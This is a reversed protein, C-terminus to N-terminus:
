PLWLEERNSKIMDSATWDGQLSSRTLIRSCVKSVKILIEQGLLNKCYIIKFVTNIKILCKQFVFLIVIFCANWNVKWIKLICLLPHTIDM